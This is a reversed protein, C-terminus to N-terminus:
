VLLKQMQPDAEVVLIRETGVGHNSEWVSDEIEPSAKALAKPSPFYLHVQTGHGPKSEVTVTGHHDRVTAYVTSLGMGRGDAPPKTTFFPEFIRGRVDPEMGTGSDSVSVIVANGPPIAGLREAQAANLSQTWVRIGISG